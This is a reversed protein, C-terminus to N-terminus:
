SREPLTGAEAQIISYSGVTIIVLVLGLVIIQKRKM